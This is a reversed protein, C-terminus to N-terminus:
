DKLSMIPRFIGFRYGKTQILEQLLLGRCSGLVEVACERDKGFDHTNLVGAVESRPTTAQTPLSEFKLVLHIEIIALSTAILCFYHQTDDHQEL